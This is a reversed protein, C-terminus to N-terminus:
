RFFVATDLLKQCFGLLILRHELLQGLSVKSGASANLPPQLGARGTGPKRTTRRGQLAGADAASLAM